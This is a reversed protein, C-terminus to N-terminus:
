FEDELQHGAGDDEDSGRVPKLELPAIVLLADDGPQAARLLSAADVRGTRLADVLRMVAERQGTPVIIEGRKEDRPATVAVVVAPPPAEHPTSRHAVLKVHSTHAASIKSHAVNEDSKALHQSAVLAPTKEPSPSTNKATQVSINGPAQQRGSPRAAFWLAAAALATVAVGAAAWQMWNIAHPASEEAIRVRVRMMLAPSPEEAVMAAIGANIREQLERQAALEARCDACQALHALLAPDTSALAEEILSKEFGECAM